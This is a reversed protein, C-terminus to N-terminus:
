EEEFDNTPSLIEGTQFNIKRFFLGNMKHTEENYIIVNGYYVQDIVTAELSSLQMGENRYVVRENSGDLDCAYLEASSTLVVPKGNGDTPEYLTRFLSKTYYIADKTVFCGAVSDSAIRKWEGTEIDIMLENKM